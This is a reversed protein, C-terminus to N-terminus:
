RSGNRGEPLAVINQVREQLGNQDLYEVGDATISCSGDDGRNILGREKLYWFSFDLHERPVGLLSEMEGRTVAPWTPDNRRKTYLVGLIGFRIEKESQAGGAAEKADFVRWKLATKQQHQVDFQARTEPDGLIRFAQLVLSFKEPDGTETNDPHYRQALIRYVRAITDERAKPSVELIEYYDVFSDRPNM